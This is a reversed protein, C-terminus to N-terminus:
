QRKKPKQNTNTQNKTIYQQARRDSQHAHSHFQKPKKLIESITQANNRENTQKISITKFEIFRELKENTQKKKPNTECVFVRVPFIVTLKDCTKWAVYSFHYSCFLNM